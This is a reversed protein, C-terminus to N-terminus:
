RVRIYYAGRDLEVKLGVSHMLREARFGVLHLVDCRVQEAALHACARGGAQEVIQRLREYM